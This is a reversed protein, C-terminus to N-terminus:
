PLEACSKISGSNSITTPVKLFPFAVPCCTTPRESRDTANSNESLRTVPLVESRGPAASAPSPLPQRSGFMTQAVQNNMWATHLIKESPLCEAAIARGAQVVLPMNDNPRGRDPSGDPYRARAEDVTRLGALERM